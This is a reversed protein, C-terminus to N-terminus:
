VYDIFLKGELHDYEHQVIRAVFGEYLNEQTDGHRNLYRVRLSQAREVMARQENVSLCGEEGCVTEPSLQLIEPNIMIEPQMEPADPYRPNPRSAVIIIRKSVYVQPAAIGVGNANEMTTQMDTLLQQFLPTKIEKPDVAQAIQRLVMEGNQAIPLIHPTLPM